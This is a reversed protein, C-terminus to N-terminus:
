CYLEHFTVLIDVSYYQLVPLGIKIYTMEYHGFLLRDSHVPFSCRVSPKKNVIYHLESM